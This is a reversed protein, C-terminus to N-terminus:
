FTKGLVILRSFSQKNHTTHPSLIETNSKLMPEYSYCSTFKLSLSLSTDHYERTWYFSLLSEFKEWANSLM